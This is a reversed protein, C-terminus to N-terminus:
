FLKLFFYVCQCNEGNIQITFKVKNPPKFSAGDLVAEKLHGVVPAWHDIEDVNKACIKHVM